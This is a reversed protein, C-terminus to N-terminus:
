EKPEELFGKEKFENLWEEVQSGVFDPVSSDNACANKVKKLFEM